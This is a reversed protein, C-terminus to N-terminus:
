ATVSPFPRLQELEYAVELLMREQGHDASLMASLPVAGGPVDVLGAPLAIAPGGSVNAAPTFGVYAQLREFVDAFEQDPSLHGLLPTVHGVTPTLVLDFRRFVEHYRPGAARLRRIAGPVAALRSPVMAALGTTIPDTLDVDFDRALLVRGTRRALYALLAWYLAFDDAFRPDVPVQEEVVEHGADALLRATELVADRTPADTPHELISDTMVAVRLRRRAPGEVLGVPRLRKAPRVAEAAALFHATDRVTRTVAGQAIIRVPLLGDVHEGALRGRTPKLGVLGCAAAPIRISGGGDNAHAIPVVGAAVLAAAGGSSAGSSYATHWPNRVAEQGVYETSASLGFEPLRSKGLPLVGLGRWQAAVQGDKAAPSAVYAASGNNTPLGAVDVNDKLYTPVGAFAEPGLGVEDLTAAAALAEDYASVQVPHLTDAVAKARHVAASVVESVSVEGDRLRRALGVTDDDDLADPTFSHCRM